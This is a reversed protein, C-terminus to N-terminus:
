AVVSEHLSWQPESDAVDVPSHGLSEAVGDLHVGAIARVQRSSGQV